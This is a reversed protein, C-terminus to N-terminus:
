SSFARFIALDPNEETSDGNESLCRPRNGLREVEDNVIRYTADDPKKGTLCFFGVAALAYIDSWPGLNGKSSYQEIPAYGPTLISTL